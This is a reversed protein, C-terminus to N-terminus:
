IDIEILNIRELLAYTKVVQGPQWYQGLWDRVVHGDEPFVSTVCPLLDLREAPDYHFPFNVAEETVVFDLPADDYLQLIVESVVALM